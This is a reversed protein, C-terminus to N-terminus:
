SRGQTEFRASAFTVCCRRQPDVAQQYDLLQGSPQGLTQLFTYTAALGCIRYRNNVLAAQGFWREADGDLASALMGHDFERVRDQFTTSVPLADGFDPGVHSLDIAAVYAVRCKSASEALRLAEVMRRVDPENLPPQDLAMLDHFSGVLIPVITFPRRGGLLHQLFVTQFEISHETRHALEDEFLHTGAHAAIADVFAQDTRITGLPTEFDKRTLVFRHRCPQHAVGLIVFVEADSEEVLAKYAWTYTPGGRGFDIHPCIVGRLNASGSTAEVPGSAGPHHFLDDLYSRLTNPNKPYSTGALAAPRSPLQAYSARHQALLPSEVLLSQELQTVLSELDSLSYKQGHERLIDNHIESLTRTGDFRTLVQRYVDLPLRLQGNFLGIPDEIVAQDGESGASRRVSLPRLLPRDLYAM